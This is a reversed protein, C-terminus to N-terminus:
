TLFVYEVGDVVFPESTSQPTNSEQGTLTKKEGPTILWEKERNKNEIAVMRLMHTTFFKYIHSIRSNQKYGLIVDEVENYSLPEGQVGLCSIVSNVLCERCMGHNTVVDAPYMCGTLNCNSMM